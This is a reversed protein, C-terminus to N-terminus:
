AQWSSKPYVGYLRLEQHEQTSHKPSYPKSDKDDDKGDSQYVRRM